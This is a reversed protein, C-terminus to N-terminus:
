AVRGGPLQREFQVESFVVHVLAARFPGPPRPTASGIKVHSCRISEESMKQSQPFTGGRVM